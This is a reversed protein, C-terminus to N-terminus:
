CRWDPICQSKSHTRRAYGRKCFCGQICQYTCPKFYRAHRVDTCSLPCASGCTTYEQHAGLCWRGFLFRRLPRSQQQQSTETTFLVAPQSSEVMALTTHPMTSGEAM